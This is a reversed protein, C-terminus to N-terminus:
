KEKSELEKQIRKKEEEEDEDEKDFPWPADGSGPEQNHFDSSGGPAGPMSVPGMGTVNMGPNLQVNERIVKFSEYMESTDPIDKDEMLHLADIYGNYFEQFEKEVIFEDLSKISYGEAVAKKKKYPKRKREPDEATGKGIRYPMLKKTDKDKHKTKAMKHLTEDSFNDSNAIKEIKKKFDGELKSTDLRGTRAAWAMGMLRQQSISASKEPM